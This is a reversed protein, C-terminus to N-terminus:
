LVAGLHCIFGPLIDEGDLQGQGDITTETGDHRYVRALRREPDIVWVLPTGAELWDAVKALTEGPRDGPSLVEVPSFPTPPPPAADPNPDDFSTSGALPAATALPRPRISAEPSAGADPAAQTPGLTAADCGCLLALLLPLKV